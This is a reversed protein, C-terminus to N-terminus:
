KAKPKLNKAAAIPDHVLGPDPMPQFTEQADVLGLMSQLFGDAGTIQEKTPQGEMFASRTYLIIQQFRDDRCQELWWKTLDKNSQFVSLTNSM